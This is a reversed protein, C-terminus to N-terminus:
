RKGKRKRAPAGAPAKRAELAMVARDAVNGAFYACREDSQMAHASLAGDEGQRHNLRHWAFAAGFAADWIRQEQENM